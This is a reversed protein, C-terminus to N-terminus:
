FEGQYSNEAILQKLLSILKEETTLKPVPQPHKEANVKKQCNLCLDQDRLREIFAGLSSLQTFYSDDIRSHDFDEPDRNACEKNVTWGNHNPNTKRWININGVVIARGHRILGVPDIGFQEKFKERTIEAEAAQRKEEELRQQEEFVADEKQKQAYAALAAEIIEM